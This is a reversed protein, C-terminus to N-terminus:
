FDNVYVALEGFVKRVKKENWKLMNRLYRFLLSKTVRGHVPTCIYEMAEAPTELILSLVFQSEQSLGEFTSTKEVLEDPRPISVYGGNFNELNFHDDFDDLSAFADAKILCAGTLIAWLQQPSSPTRNIAKRHGFILVKCLYM